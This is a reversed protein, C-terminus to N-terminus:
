PRRSEECPRLSEVCPRLSKVCPRLSEDGNDSDGARELVVGRRPDTADDSAPDETPVGVQTVEAGEEELSAEESLGATFM